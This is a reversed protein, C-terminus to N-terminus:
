RVEQWVAAGPDYHANDAVYDHCIRQPHRNKVTCQVNQWGIAKMAQCSGIHICCHSHAGCPSLNIFKEYLEIISCSLMLIPGQFIEPSWSGSSAGRSASSDGAASAAVAAADHRKSARRCPSSDASRVNCSARSASFTCCTWHLLLESRPQQSAAVNSICSSCFETATGNMVFGVNKLHMAEDESILSCLSVKAYVGVSSEVQLHHAKHLAPATCIISVSPLLDFCGSDTGSASWAIIAAVNTKSLACQIYVRADAAPPPPPAADAPAPPAPLRGFMM